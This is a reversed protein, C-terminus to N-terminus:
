SNLLAPPSLSATKGNDDVLPGIPNSHGAKADYQIMQFTEGIFPDNSSGIEGAASGRGQGTATGYAKRLRFVREGAPTM